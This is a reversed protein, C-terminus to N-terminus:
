GNIEGKIPFYWRWAATVLGLTFWLYPLAFSDVSFEELVLATLMFVGMYGLTQRKESRSKILEVATVAFIFLFLIFLSFGVIGTEALLRSWMNKVNMLNPSQYLLKRTESLGWGSDPLYRPFYFGSFGVGVGLVPYDNFINWGTQWYVVREGFQLEEAYKVLQNEDPNSFQFVNEMRPDVKSLVFLGGFVVCFYALIVGLSIIITLWTKSKENWKRALWGIFRINLLIFVLALVSFFAALGGRSLTGFLVLIGGVLLFNEFTFKWVRFHHVSTRNLSAALWYALYVLNLMHALWSPEAAFGTM